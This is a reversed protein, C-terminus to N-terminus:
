FDTYLLYKKRKQKFANLDKEWSQHIAQASMGSKIQQMLTSNGALKNFFANFFTKKDKCHQYADIILEIHIANNHMLSDRAYDALNIGRCKENCYLPNSVVHAISQPTFYYDGKKFGPQGYMTFPASTGRGLSINTGELLCLTPYLYIAEMCSLNPSPAIPLQYRCNHDYNEMKVWLLKCKVKNALWGEANVMRAYEAITMGHNIPVPHMGVFSKYENELVCGDVWYGNPNPRDMVMVTKHNEAAAEMIYSLTSIYTYFRAGVDQIDFVIIDVDSLQEKTPKKNNGYLSIVPLGTASDISNNVQQGAEAQGRFGHEPCFIKVVHIHEALLTDPLSTHGVMSTHNVCLAVKQGQLIPLYCEMREAGVRLPASTSDTQAWLCWPLCLLIIFIRKM